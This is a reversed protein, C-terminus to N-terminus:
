EKLINLMYSKYDSKASSYLAELSEQSTRQNNLLHYHSERYKKREGEKMNDTSCFSNFKVLQCM